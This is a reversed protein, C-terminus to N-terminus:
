TSYHLTIRGSMFDPKEYNTLLFFRFSLVLCSLIVVAIYSNSNFLISRVNNASRILEGPPCIVTFPAYSLNWPPHNPFYSSCNKCLLREQTISKTKFPNYSITM